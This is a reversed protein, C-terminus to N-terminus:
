VSQPSKWVMYRKKYILGSFFFLSKVINERHTQTCTGPHTNERLDRHTLHQLLKALEQAQEQQDEDGEGNTESLEVSFVLLLGGLVLCLVTLADEARLLAVIGEM